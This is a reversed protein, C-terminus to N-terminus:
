EKSKLITEKKTTANVKYCKTLTGRSKLEERAQNIILVLENWSCKDYNIEITM